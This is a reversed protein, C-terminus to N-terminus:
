TLRPWWEEEDKNKKSINILINRGKLNWKSEHRVIPEYLELNLSYREDNSHCFFILANRSEDININVKVCDTM